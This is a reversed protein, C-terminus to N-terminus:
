PPTAILVLAALVLAAGIEGATPVAVLAGLAVYFLAAFFDAISGLQSRVVGSVPFTSLAVGGLFAGTVLPLELANAFGVFVFLVALITLIMSENDHLRLILPAAFRHCAWALVILGITALLGVIMAPLGDAVRTVLPILLIVLLDQLLLVGVVLRAFPEFLQGRSQLLRIVLLTSSATIALALYFSGLPGFGLAMSVGFGLLAHVFFQIAGVRLAVPRQARTRSPNMEIGTVFLLFTAGLVLSQEILATPVAGLITLVIGAALLAPIAPISLWRALAYGAAAAVLLVALGEMM